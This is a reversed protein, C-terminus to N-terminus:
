GTEAQRAELAALRGRLERDRQWRATVDRMIAAAGATAGNPGRLLVITFELSLRSGDRRIGPVALVDRGYRTKGSAMVARYGEWHRERQREPIILDLTQGLAEAQSYGFLQEAGLNWLQIVGERDAVIIADQAQEIIQRHLDIPPQETM